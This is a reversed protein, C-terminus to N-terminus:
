AVRRRRARIGLGLLLVFFLGLVYPLAVAVRGMAESKAPRSLFRFTEVIKRLTAAVDTTKNPMLVSIRYVRADVVVTALACRAEFAGIKGAFESILGPQSGIERRTERVLLLGLRKQIDNLDRQLSGDELTTGEGVDYVYLAIMLGNAHQRLHQYRLDPPPPEQDMEWDDGGPLEIVFDQDRVELVEARVAASLLVLGLIGRKM